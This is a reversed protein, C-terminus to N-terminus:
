GKEKGICRILVSQEKYIVIIISSIHYRKLFFFFWSSILWMKVIIYICYIHIFRIIKERFFKHDVKPCQSYLWHCQTVSLTHTYIYIIYGGFSPHSSLDFLLTEDKILIIITHLHLDPPRCFRCEDHEFAEAHM